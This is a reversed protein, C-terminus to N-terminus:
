RSASSHATARHTSASRSSHRTHACRGTSWLRAAGHPRGAAAWSRRRSSALCGASRTPRSSSGSSSPCGRTCTPKRRTWTHESRRTRAPNSVTWPRGCGRRQRLTVALRSRRPGATAARTTYRTRPRWARSTSTRTPTSDWRRSRRATSARCYFCRPDWRSASGATPQTSGSRRSGAVPTRGRTKSWWRPRCAQTQWGHPQTSAVWAQASWLLEPLTVASARWPRPSGGRALLSCRSSRHHTDCQSRLESPPPAVVRSCTRRPTGVRRSCSRMNLSPHRCPVCVFPM